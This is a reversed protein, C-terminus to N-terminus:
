KIFSFVKKQTKEYIKKYISLFRKKDLLNGKIDNISQLNFIRTIEQEISKRTLKKNEIFLNIAVLNRILYYKEEGYTIDFNYILPESKLLHLDLIKYNIERKINYILRKLSICNSLMLIYLPDTSLGIQLEKNSLAILHSKIGIASEISEKLLRENFKNETIILIDLDNFQFGPNLFSGGIIINDYGKIHNRILSFIKTIIELKIPEIAKLGYFFPRKIEPKTEKQEIQKIIVYSGAELGPRNKPIYVQDMKSGKSIKAIIEM